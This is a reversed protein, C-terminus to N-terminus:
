RAKVESIIKRLPLIKTPSVSLEDLGLRILKECVSTDSGAEGCIGAWIGHKHANDCTLKILQMVAPHTVDYIKDLRSNQRDAALTYQTLDNTGISFFDAEAALADSILAAAPTEIMIGEKVNGFPISKKQLESRIENTLKKASRIEDASIIMPYMISINGYASARLIARLQTKFLSKKALSLRIGRVGLAPNEEDDFNIYDARKDAGLDFTRIVVSKGNMKEAVKKYAEFQEEESPAEAKGVYLFESRFLGIGEADNEAAYRADEPSGINAFLMIEKGDATVTKLGRMKELASKEEKDESLKKRLLRLLEDDPDIYIKGTYADVAAIAGNLNQKIPINASVVAPVNMIGALIATHSSVSGGMTVFALINKRDLSVTESPSLDNAVIIAPESLKQVDVLEGTLNSIVRQSIDRVDASRGRMYENDMKSFMAAFEEGTKYVAYEAVVKEKNIVNKISDTFDTDELMMKHIAFIEASEEGVSEVAASHINELQKKSTELAKYFRSKEAETDNTLVPVSADRKEGILTIKGIAIGGCVSKGKYIEM